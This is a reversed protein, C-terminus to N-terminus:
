YIESVNEGNEKLFEKNKSLKSFEKFRIFKVSMKGMKKWFNKVEKFNKLKSKFKQMKKLFFGWMKISNLNM